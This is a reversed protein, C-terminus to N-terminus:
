GPNDLKEKFEEWSGRYIKRITSPLFETTESAVKALSEVLNWEEWLRHNKSLFNFSKLVSVAAYSLSAGVVWAATTRLDNLLLPVFAAFGALVVAMGRIPVINTATASYRGLNLCTKSHKDRFELVYSAFNDTALRLETDNNIVEVAGVMDPDSCASLKTRVLKNFEYSEGKFGNIEERLAWYESWFKRRTFLKM